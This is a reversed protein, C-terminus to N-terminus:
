ENKNLRRASRDDHTAVWTHTKPLNTDRVPKAAVGSLEINGTCVERQAFDRSIDGSHLSKSTPSPAGSVSQICCRQARGGGGPRSCLNIEFESRQHTQCSDNIANLGNTASASHRMPSRLSTIPVRIGNVYKSQDRPGPGLSRRGSDRMRLPGAAPKGSISAQTSTLRITKAPPM